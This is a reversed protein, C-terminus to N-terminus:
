RASRVRVPPAVSQGLRTRRSAAVEASVTSHSTTVTPARKAKAVAYLCTPWEAAAHVLIADRCPNLRHDAPLPRSARCEARGQRHRAIQDRIGIADDAGV